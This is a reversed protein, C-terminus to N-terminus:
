QCTTSATSDEEISTFEWLQKRKPYQKEYYMIGHALSLVNNNQPPIFLPSGFRNAFQELIEQQKMFIGKQRIRHNHKEQSSLRLQM